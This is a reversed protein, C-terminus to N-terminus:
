SNVFCETLSIYVIGLYEHLFGAVDLCKPAKTDFGLLMRAFGAKACSQLRQLSDAVYVGFACTRSRTAVTYPGFAPRM